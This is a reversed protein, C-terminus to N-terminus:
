APKASLVGDRIFVMRGVGRFLPLDHTSVVITVGRANLGKLCELVSVASATDLNSTPEDVFLIKPDNILSRALAAKRREGGSVESPRRDRLSWIGLEEMVGKVRGMRKGKAVGQIILPLEVNERLSLSEIFLDEQPMFGVNLNRFRLRENLPLEYVSLGLLTVAGRDPRLFGAAVKLLTTKGSGSPGAISVIEGSRVTLGVGKLVEVARHASAYSKSVRTLVLAEDM